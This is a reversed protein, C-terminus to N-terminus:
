KRNNMYKNMERALVSLADTLQNLETAAMLGSGISKVFAPNNILAVIISWVIILLLGGALIYLPLEFVKWKSWAPVQEVDLVLTAPTGDAFVNLNASGLPSYQIGVFIKLIKTTGLNHINAQLKSEGEEFILNPITVWIPNDSGLPQTWTAVIPSPLSIELKTEAQPANGQNIISIEYTTAPIGAIELAKMTQETNLFTPITVHSTSIQYYVDPDKDNLSLFAPVSAMIAILLTLIGLVPTTLRSVKKNESNNM